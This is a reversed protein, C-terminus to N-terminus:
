LVRHALFERIQPVADDVRDVRESRWGAARAAAVNEEKDDFYLVHSGSIGTGQEVRRYAQEHPKMVRLEHSAFLYDLRTLPAYRGDCDVMTRWHRANTNSLCATRVGRSKLDDILEPAGPYLGQLWADYVACLDARSMGPVCPVMERLYGAEDLDGTEYRVMLHHLKRWLDAPGAPAGVNARRCADEWGSALRVLVGGLDFCVLRVVDGIDNASDRRTM